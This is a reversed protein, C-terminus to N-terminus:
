MSSHGFSMPQTAVNGRSSGPGLTPEYNHYADFALLSDDLETKEAIRSGPWNDEPVIPILRNM